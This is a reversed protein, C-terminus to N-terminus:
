VITINANPDVNFPTIKERNGAVIDSTGANITLTVIKATGTIITVIASYFDQYYLTGGIFSNNCLEEFATVIDERQIQSLSTILSVTLTFTTNLDTPRSFSIPIINGKGDTVNETTTGQTETGMDLNNWVTTAVDNDAGGLVVPEIFGRTIANDRNIDFVITDLVGTTELLAKEMSELGNGSNGNRVAKLRLRYSYDSESEEGNIINLVELDTLSPYTTTSTIKDGVNVAGDEIFETSQMTISQVTSSILEDSTNTFTVASDSTLYFESSEVITYGTTSSTAQVTLISPELARRSLGILKGANDLDQGTATDLDLSNFVNFADKQCNDIESAFMLAVQGMPSENDVSLGVFNDSIITKVDSIITEESVLEYGNAGIKSM